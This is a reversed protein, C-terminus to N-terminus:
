FGWLSSFNLIFQDTVLIRTVREEDEIELSFGDNKSIPDLIRLARESNGKGVILQLSLLVGNWLTVNGDIIPIGNWESIERWQVIGGDIYNKIRKMESDPIGRSKRWFWRGTRLPDKLGCLDEIEGIIEKIKYANGAGFTMAVFSIDGDSGETRMELIDESGENLYTFLSISGDPNGRAYKGTGMDESNVPFWYEPKKQESTLRNWFVSVSLPYENGDVPSIYKEVIMLDASVIERENVFISADKLSGYEDVRIYPDIEKSDWIAAREIGSIEIEGLDTASLREVIQSKVYFMNLRDQHSINKASGETDGDTAGDNEVDQSIPEIRQYIDFSKEFHKVPSPPKKPTQHLAFLAFIATFLIIAVVTTGAIFIFKDEGIKL